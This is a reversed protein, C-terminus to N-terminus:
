NVLFDLQNITKTKFIQRSPLQFFYRGHNSIEHIIKLTEIQDIIIYNLTPWKSTLIAVSFCGFIHM